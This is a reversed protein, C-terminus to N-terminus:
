QFGIVSTLGNLTQCVSDQLLWWLLAFAYLTWGWCVALRESEEWRSLIDANEIGAFATRWLNMPRYHSKDLPHFFPAFVHSLISPQYHPLVRHLLSLLSRKVMYNWKGFRVFVTLYHQKIGWEVGLDRMKFSYERLQNRIKMQCQAKLHFRSALRSVIKWRIGAM